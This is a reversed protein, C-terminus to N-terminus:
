SSSLWTSPSIVSPGPTNVPLNVIIRLGGLPSTTAQIHGQHAHAIAQCIALGLGSGGHDGNRATDGRFLPDFLRHHDAAPVGPASDDVILQLMTDVQCLQLVISGPADTYRLSNSVLNGLLQEMRRVDWHAPVPSANPEVQLTLGHQEAQLAFREAVQHVLSAGDLWQPHCPLAGMDALSLQHLESVIYTLRLTEERLSEVAQTTLPRIGDLLAEIEGRLVSLPTRLEHSIDAIWRRRADTMRQLTRSMQNINRIVDGIEDSRTTGTDIHVDREGGAIRTTAQQVALLPRTLQRSLWYAAMVSLALLLASSVTITQYQARLFREDIGGNPSPSRHLRLLAVPKGQFLVAAEDHPDADPPPQHGALLRGETDHLTIRDEMGRPPPPPRRRGFPFLPRPPPGSEQIDPNGAFDRLLPLLRLDGQNLADANGSAEVRASVHDAFEQLDQHDREALFASFGNRLNWAMLTAMAVICLTTLAVLLLSFRHILRLRIM